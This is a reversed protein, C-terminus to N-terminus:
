IEKVQLVGVNMDYCVDSILNNLRKRYENLKDKDIPLENTSYERLPNYGGTILALAIVSELEHLTVAEFTLSVTKPTVKGKRLQLM